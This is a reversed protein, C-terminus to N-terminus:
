QNTGTTESTESSQSEDTETTTELLTSETEVTAEVTSEISDDPSSDETVEEGSAEEVEREPEGPMTLEISSSAKETTTPDYVTVTVECAAGSPMDKMASLALKHLTSTETGAEVIPLLEIADTGECEVKSIYALTPESVVLDLTTLAPDVVSGPTNTFTILYPSVLSCGASLLLSALTLPLVKQM